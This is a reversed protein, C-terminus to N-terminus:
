YIATSVIPDISFCFVANQKATNAIAHNAFEDLIQLNKFKRLYHCFITKKHKSAGVANVGM